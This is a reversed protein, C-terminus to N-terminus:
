NLCVSGYMSDTVRLCCLPTFKFVLRRAPVRYPLVCRSIAFAIDVDPFAVSIPYSCTRVIFTRRLFIRSEMHVRICFGSEFQFFLDVHLHTVELPLGILALRCRLGAHTFFTSRTDGQM